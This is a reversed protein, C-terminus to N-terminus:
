ILNANADFLGAREPRLGTARHDYLAANSIVHFRGEPDLRRAGGQSILRDLDHSSVSYSQLDRLLKPPLRRIGDGQNLAKEVQAILKPAEDGYPVLISDASDDIMRFAEAVSRFPLWGIGAGAQSLKALCRDKDQANAQVKFLRQFFDDV